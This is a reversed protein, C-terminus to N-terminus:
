PVQEPIVRREDDVLGMVELLLGSLRAPVPEPARIDEPGEIAEGLDQVGTQRTGQLGAAVGGVPEEPLGLPQEGLAEAPSSPRRGPAQAHGVVQEDLWPKLGQHAVGMVSDGDEAPSGLREARRARGAELRIKEGLRISLRLLQRQRRGGELPRRAGDVVDEQLPPLSM